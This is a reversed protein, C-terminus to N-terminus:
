RRIGNFAGPTRSHTDMAQFGVLEVPTELKANLRL